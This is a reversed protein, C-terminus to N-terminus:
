KQNMERLANDIGVRKLKRTRAINKIIEGKRELDGLTKVDEIKDLHKVIDKHSLLYIDLTSNNTYTPQTTTEHSVLVQQMASYNPSNLNKEKLAEENCSKIYERVAESFNKYRPLNNVFVDYDEKDVHILVGKPNDM